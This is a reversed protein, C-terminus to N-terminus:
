VARRKPGADLVVDHRVFLRFAYNLKYAATIRNGDDLELFNRYVQQTLIAILGFGTGATICRGV